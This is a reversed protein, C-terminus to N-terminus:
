GIIVNDFYAADNLAGLGIEGGIFTADTTTLIQDGDYWVTIGTGIHQIKIAHYNTDLIQGGTTTGIPVPTAGGVVKYLKTAGSIANFEMFYYNTSNQYGFVIAYNSGTGTTSTSGAAVDVTMTFDGVNTYGSQSLLSYEGLTNNTGEAYSSTNIYYRVSYSGPAGSPVGVTWRSSTLPTWGTISSNQFNDTFAANTNTINVEEYNDVTFTNEAAAQLTLQMGDEGATGQFHTNTDTTAIQWTTPETTGVQWISAYLDTTNTNLTLVEYELEYQTGPVITSVTFKKISTNTGSVTRAFELNSGVTGVYAKLTYFTTEQTNSRAVLQFITGSTDASFLVTQFTDVLTQTKNMVAENGSMTKGSDEPFLAQGQNNQITLSPTTHNLAGTVSAWQTNWSSNNTGYYYDTAVNGVENTPTTANAINSFASTTSSNVADVEYYYLTSPFLNSSDTYATAGAGATGIQTFGGTSTTSRDVDYATAAGGDNDTWTLNIQSASAPTASLSSPAGLTGSSTTAHAINSFASTTYSDVADVVYYYLTSATLGTDSYATAGSGATGVQAFGGTSTTSRDIDYATASGSDNATWTLTIQSSSAAVATLSSPAALTTIANAINSFSSVTVANVADVEYYYKVGDTLGTNTYAAVGAGVTAIQTFGGTSTTSRDINYATAAGGDNDTWALNIQSTSAATATLGSPAALGGTTASAVNSFASVGAATNFAQVEYYYTGTALGTDSYATTSASVTTIQAWSSGDTSRDIDVGAATTSNNTWNLNIQSSSIDTAGLDSPAALNTVAGAVNSFGTTSTGATAQVEYYYQTGDTLSSDTYNSVTGPVTAIQTFGGTSATSRDIDVATQISNTNTWALSIQSTSIASASLSSPATLTASLPQVPGNFISNGSTNFSQIEYWYSNLTNNASTDHYSTVTAGVSTLLTFTVGDTSRDINLGTQADPSAANNTWTLDNESSSVDSAALNTPAASIALIAQDASWAANLVTQTPTPDPTGPSAKLLGKGEVTLGSSGNPDNAWFYKVKKWMYLQVDETYNTVNILNTDTLSDVWTVENTMDNLIVNFAASNIAPTTNAGLAFYDSELKYEDFLYIEYMRVQDVRAQDANFQATTFSANHGNNYATVLSNEASNLYPFAQQLALDDSVAINFNPTTTPLGFTGLPEGFGGFALGDFNMMTPPSSLNPDAAIGEMSVYYDEMNTAAPGFSSNYFNTLLNQMTTSNGVSTDFSMQGAMYYGPTQSGSGAANEGELVLTHDDNFLEMQTLVTSPLLDPATPNAYGGELFINWNRYVGVLAGHNANDKLQEDITYASYDFLETSEMYVNPEMAFSPPHTTSAYELAGIYLNEGPAENQLDYKGAANILAWYSESDADVLVGNQNYGQWDFGPDNTEFPNISHMTAITGASQDYGAGDNASLSLMSGPAPDGALWTAVKNMVVHNIVAPNTFDLQSDKYNAVVFNSNSAGNILTTDTFTPNAGSTTYIELVPNVSWANSVWLEDSNTVATVSSSEFYTDTVDATIAAALASAIGSPTNDSSNATVTVTQSVGANTLVVSYTNGNTITGLAAFTAVTGNGKFTAGNGAWWDPHAQLNAASGNVGLNAAQSTNPNPFGGGYNYNYFPNWGKSEITAWGGSGGDDDLYGISSAQSIDWTGSIATLSPTIQWVNPNTSSGANNPGYIQMGLGQLFSDIADSEGAVGGGLLYLNTGDSRILDSTQSLQNEDFSKNYSTSTDYESAVGVYVGHAATTLGTTPISTPTPSTIGLIAELNPILNNEEMGNTFYFSGQKGTSSWLSDNLGSPSEGVDFFTPYKGTDVKNITYIGDLLSFSDTSTFDELIVTNGM